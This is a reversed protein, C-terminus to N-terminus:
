YQLGTLFVPLEDTNVTSAVNGGQIASGGPTSLVQNTLSVKGSRSRVRVIPNQMRPQAHQSFANLMKRRTINSGRVSTKSNLWPQANGPTEHQLREQMTPLGQNFSATPKKGQHSHTPLSHGQGQSREHPNGYKTSPPGGRYATPVRRDIPPGECPSRQLNRVPPPDSYRSRRSYEREKRDYDEMERRYEHERFYELWEEYYPDSPHPPPMGDYQDYSSRRAAPRDEYRYRDEYHRDEEDWYKSDERRGYKRADIRRRDEYWRYDEYPDEYSEEQRRYRPIEDYCDDRYEQSRDDSKDKQNVVQSEELLKKVEDLKKMLTPLDDNASSSSAQQFPVPQKTQAQQELGTTAKATEIINKLGTVEFIKNKLESIDKNFPSSASALALAAEQVSNQSFNKGGSSLTSTVKHRSSVTTSSSSRTTNITARCTFVVTPPPVPTAQGTCAVISPVSTVLGTYAVTPPPVALLSGGFQTAVGPLPPPVGTHPPFIGGPPPFGVPPPPFAPSTPLFGYTPPPVNFSSPIFPPIVNKGGVMESKNVVSTQMTSNSKQTYTDEGKSWQYAQQINGRHGKHQQINVSINQRYRQFLDVCQKADDRREHRRGRQYFKPARRKFRHGSRYYHEMDEDSSSDEHRKRINKRSKASLWGSHTNGIKEKNARRSHGKETELSREFSKGDSQSDEDLMSAKDGDSRTLPIHEVHANDDQISSNNRGLTGGEEEVVYLDKDDSKIESEAKDISKGKGENKEDDGSSIEVYEEYLVSGTPSGPGQTSDSDTDSDTEIMFGYAQRKIEKREEEEKEDIKSTEGIEGTTEISQDEELDDGDKMEDLTVSTEGDQGPIQKQGSNEEVSTDRVSSGDEIENESHREEVSELYNQSGNLKDDTDIDTSDWTETSDKHDAKVKGTSQTEVHKVGKGKKESSTVNKVKEPRKSFSITMLKKGDKTKFNINADIKLDKQDLVTEDEGTLDIVEEEDFNMKSDSKCVVEVESDGKINEEAIIEVKDENEIKKSQSAPEFCHALKDLYISEDPLDKENVENVFGFDSNDENADLMDFSRCRTFRIKKVVVKQKMNDDGIKQGLINDTSSMLHERQLSDITLKDTDEKSFKNSRLDLDSETSSIEYIRSMQKTVKSDMNSIEHNEQYSNHESPKVSQMDGLITKSRDVTIAVNSEDSDVDNDLELEDIVIHSMSDDSDSRENILISEEIQDSDKDEYEIIIDSKGNYVTLDAKACEEKDRSDHELEEREKKETNKNWADVWSNCGLEKDLGSINDDEVLKSSIQSCHSKSANHPVSVDTDEEFETKNDEKLSQDDVSTDITDSTDIDIQKEAKRKLTKPRGKREKNNREKKRMKESTQVHIADETGAYEKQDTEESKEELAQFEFLCFFLGIAYFNEIM